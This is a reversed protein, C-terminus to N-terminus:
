IVDCIGLNMSSIFNLMEFVIKSKCCKKEGFTWYSKNAVVTKWTGCKFCVGVSFKRKFYKETEDM